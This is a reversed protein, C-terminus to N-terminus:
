KCNRYCSVLQDFFKIRQVSGWTRSDDIVDRNDNLLFYADKQIMIHQGEPLYKGSITNIYTGALYPEELIKNNIYIRGSKLMIDEGPLGIIRKIHLQYDFPSGTVIVEGRNLIVDDSLKSALYYRNDSFNPLMNNGKIRYTTYLTPHIIVKSATQLDFKQNYSLYYFSGLMLCATILLTLLIRVM